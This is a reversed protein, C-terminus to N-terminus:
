EDCVEDHEPPPWSMGELRYVIVALLTEDNFIWDVLDEIQPGDRLTALHDRLDDILSRCRLIKEAIEDERAGTLMGQIVGNLLCKIADAERMADKAAWQTFPRPKTRPM